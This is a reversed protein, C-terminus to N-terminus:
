IKDIILRYYTFRLTYNIKKFFSELLLNFIIMIYNVKYLTTWQLAVLTFNKVWEDTSHAAILRPVAPAILFFNCFSLLSIQLIM